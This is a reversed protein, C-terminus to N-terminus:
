AAKLSRGAPVKVLFGLDDGQSVRQYEGSGEWTAPKLGYGDSDSENAILIWLSHPQLKGANIEKQATEFNM